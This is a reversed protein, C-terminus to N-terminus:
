LFHLSNAKNKKLALPRRLFFLPFGERKHPYAVIQIRRPVLGEALLQPRVLLGLVARGISWAGM